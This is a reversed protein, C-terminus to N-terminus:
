ELPFSLISCEILKEFTNGFAQNYIRGDRRVSFDHDYFSSAGIVVGKERLLKRSFVPRLRAGTKCSYVGDVDDVINSIHNTFREGCLRDVIIGPFIVHVGYKFMTDTKEPLRTLVHCYVHKKDIKNKWLKYVAKICTQIDIIMKSKWDPDETETKRDFELVLRSTDHALENDFYAIGNDIDSAKLKLYIRHDDLNM